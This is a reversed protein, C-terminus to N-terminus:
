PIIMQNWVTQPARMEEGLVKLSELCLARLEPRLKQLEDFDTRSHYADKGQRWTDQAARLFADHLRELMESEKLLSDEADAHLWFCSAWYTIENLTPRYADEAFMAGESLDFHRAEEFAPFFANQIEDDSAFVRLLEIFHPWVSFPWENPSETKIAAFDM